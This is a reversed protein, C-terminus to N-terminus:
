RKQLRVDGSFSKAVIRGGAGTSFSLEKGPGYESTRKAQPGFENTINGSFTTVDFDAATAAPLLLVVSGSVTKADLRGGSALGAEFRIDGSTTQLEARSVADGTVSVAGSVSSAEVSGNVGKLAVAGSVSSARGPAGAAAIEIGGSVTKAEFERPAGGVTVRGSVSELRVPGAVGDVGIDASVTNVEVRSGAPVKIELDSGDVHHAFHPLVVRVETRVGTGTFELRESGRGLTGTVAVEDRDWGTVKVSGSVNQVEVVGDKSAPRREDLKQQAMAPLVVVALAMVSLGVRKMM